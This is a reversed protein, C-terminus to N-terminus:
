MICSTIMQFAVASGSLNNDASKSVYDDYFADDDAKNAQIYSYHTADPSTVIAIFMLLIGRPIFGKFGYFSKVAKENNLEIFIAMTTLALAYLRIAFDRLGGAITRVQNNAIIELFIMYMLNSLVCFGLFCITIAKLVQLVGLLQRPTFIGGVLDIVNERWRGIFSDDNSGQVYETHLRENLSTTSRPSAMKNCFFHSLM